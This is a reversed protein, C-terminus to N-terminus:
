VLISACAQVSTPSPSLTRGFAVRLKGSRDAGAAFKEGLPAPLAQANARGQGEWGAWKAERQDAGALADHGDVALLTGSAHSSICHFGSLSRLAARLRARIATATM